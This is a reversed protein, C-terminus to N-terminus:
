VGQFTLRQLQQQTDAMAAELYWLENQIPTARQYWKRTKLAQIARAQKIQLKHLEWKVPELHANPRTEYAYQFNSHLIPSDVPLVV